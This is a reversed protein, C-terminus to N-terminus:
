LSLNPNRNLPCKPAIPCPVLRAQPSHVINQEPIYPVPLFTATSAPIPLPIVPPQPNILQQPPFVPPPNVFPNLPPYAYHPSHAFPVQTQLPINIQPPNQQQPVHPISLHLQGPVSSSKPGLLQNAPTNTSFDPVFISKTPAMVPTPPWSPQM